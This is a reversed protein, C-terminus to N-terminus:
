DQSGVHWALMHSKLGDKRYFNPSCLGCEFPPEGHSLLHRTLLWSTMFSKGREPCNKSKGLSHDAAHKEFAEMNTFLCRCVHCKHIRNAAPNERQHWAAERTEEPVRGHNLDTAATSTGQDASCSGSSMTIHPGAIEKGAM